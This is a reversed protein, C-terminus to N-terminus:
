AARTFDTANQGELHHQFWKPPETNKWKAFRAKAGRYFRRYAEVPDEHKYEEPMALAFPTQQCRAIGDPAKSLFEFLRRASHEKHYRATYERLCGDFLMFLWHYNADTRRAWVSCPHNAHAVKYCKENQVRVVWRQTYLQNGDEDEEDLFMKQLEPECVEGPLAWHRLKKVKGTDPDERTWEMLRGDLLRHSTSLMQGYELIMKVVHKDCHGKAAEYPNQDLVFINM